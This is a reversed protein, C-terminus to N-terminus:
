RLSEADMTDTLLSLIGTGVMTAEEADCVVWVTEAVVMTAWYQPSSQARRRCALLIVLFIKRLDM